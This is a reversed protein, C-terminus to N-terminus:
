VQKRDKTGIHEAVKTWNRGYLEIGVFLQEKEAKTWANTSWFPSELIDLTKQEIESLDPANKLYKM